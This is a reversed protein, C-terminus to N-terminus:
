RVSEDYDEIIVLEKKRFNKYWEIFILVQYVMYLIANTHWIIKKIEAKINGTTFLLTSCLLYLFFGSVIYIYKKDADEIKQIFFFFSYVLLPVSTIIIEFINFKYYNSPYIIYYIGLSILVIFLGFTIIKKQLEKTLLQKFFLSLLIFQAIFYYHSLFLNHEEIIEKVYTSSLQILLTLCLYIFFLKFAVSNNRYSKFFIITNIGLTLFGFYIFLDILSM